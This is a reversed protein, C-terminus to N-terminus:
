KLFFFYGVAGLGLTVAGGILLNVKTNSWGTVSKLELANDEFDQAKDRIRAAKEDLDKM